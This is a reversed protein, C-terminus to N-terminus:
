ILHTLVLALDFKIGNCALLEDGSKLLALVLASLNSLLLDLLLHLVLAFLDDLFALVM